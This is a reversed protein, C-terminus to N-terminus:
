KKTKLKKNSIRNEHLVFVSKNLSLICEYFFIMNARELSSIESDDTTLANYLIYWITEEVSEVDYIDYFENILKWAYKKASYGSLKKRLDYIPLGQHPHM